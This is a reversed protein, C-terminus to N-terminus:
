RQEEPGRVTFGYVRSQPAGRTEELVLRLSEASPGRTFLVQLNEASTANWKLAQFHVGVSKFEVRGRLPGCELRACDDEIRWTAALDSM